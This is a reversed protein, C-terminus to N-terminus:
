ARRSRDRRDSPVGGVVAADGGRRGFAIQVAMSEPLSPFISLVGLMACLEADSPRPQQYRDTCRIGRLM